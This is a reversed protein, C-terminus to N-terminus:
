KGGERETRWSPAPAPALLSCLAVFVKGGPVLAFRALLHFDWYTVADVAWHLWPRGPSKGETKIAKGAEIDGAGKSRKTM